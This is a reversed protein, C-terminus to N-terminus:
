RWEKAIEWKMTLAAGLAVLIFFTRAIWGVFPISGLVYFVVSGLLITKWNVDIPRTFLWSNLLSGLVIAGIIHGYMMLAMFSLFGIIGLPMGIFSLILLLSVVPLVIAIVLGIGFEPIPHALSRQGLEIAYKKFVLGIVLASTLLMLFKLVLWVTLFAILGETAAERLDTRKTFEIGGLVRAGAEKEAEQVATYAFAGGISAKETLSIREVNARVEGSIPANITITSGLFRASGAVPADLTVSAGVAILDGEITGSIHVQGGFVIVDGKIDGSITVNGGAVRLDDPLDSLVSVSGGAVVVDGTVLGQVLVNGGAAFLDGTVSGLHTVAAGAAYVDDVVKEARDILPQEGVRLDLAGSVGPFLMLTAVLLLAYSRM